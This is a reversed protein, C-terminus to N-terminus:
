QLFYTYISHLGLVDKKEIFSLFYINKLISIFDVSFGEVM